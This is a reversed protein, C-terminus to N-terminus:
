RARTFHRTKIQFSDIKLYRVLFDVNLILSMNLVTSINLFIFKHIRISQMKSFSLQTKIFIQRPFRAALTMFRFTLPTFLFYHAVRPMQCHKSPNITSQIIQQVVTYMSQHVCRLIYNGSTRQTLLLYYLANTLSSSVRSNRSEIVPLYIQM